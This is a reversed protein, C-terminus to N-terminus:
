AGFLRLKLHTGVNQPAEDIWITQLHCRCDELNVALPGFTQYMDHLYIMSIIFVLEHVAFRM